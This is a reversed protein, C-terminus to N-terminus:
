PMEKYGAEGPGVDQQTPGLLLEQPNNELMTAVRKVQQTTSHLNTLLKNMKPLTTQTLLDGSAGGKDVLDAAKRSLTQVDQTLEQLDRAM